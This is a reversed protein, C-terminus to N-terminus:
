NRVLALQADGYFAYGLYTPDAKEYVLRRADSLAEAVSARGQDKLRQSLSRYFAVAFRAAPDDTLPWLGGIYGAAGRALVAPAWGEVAGAVSEAQGVDCANFFFLARDHARAVPVGRWDMVDFPGDELEIAFRRDAATRGAVEGHGAFHIIGSPPNRVLALFDTRKGAIRRASLLSTIEDIERAQAALAARDSYAPAIAVVEHVQADQPPRLSPRPGDEEHWRALAFAIGFFDTSGGEPRPARM